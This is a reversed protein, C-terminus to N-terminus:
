VLGATRLYNYANIIARLQDECSRDGGNADPHLRKVLEKYRAKMAAKDAGPELGLTDLAKRTANGVRPEAPKAERASAPFGRRGFLGFPDNIDAEDFAGRLREGPDAPGGNVGMRWTPRHGYLDAKQYAAVAEDTMDKFYNYSANYARVHDLCFHFYQGERGRGQPARYPGLFKCGPYGCIPDAAAGAAPDCRQRTRVRDFLPSNLDM